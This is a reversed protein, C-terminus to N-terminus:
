CFKSSFRSPCTGQSDKDRIEKRCGYDRRKIEELSEEDKASVVNVAYKPRAGMAYIDHVNVLISVFGGWYLDRELVRHWIGDITFVITYDSLDFFGADEGFFDQVLDQFRGTFKKRLIGPYSKLENIIKRLEM